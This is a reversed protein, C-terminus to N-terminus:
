SLDRLDWTRVHELESGDFSLPEECIRAFGMMM